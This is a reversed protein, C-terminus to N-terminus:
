CSHSNISCLSCISPRCLETFLYRWLSWCLIVCSSVIEELNLLSWHIKIYYYLFDTFVIESRASCSIMLSHVQSKTTDFFINLNMQFIFNWKSKFIYIAIVCWQLTLNKKKKGLNWSYCCIGVHSQLLLYTLWPNVSVQLFTSSHWEEWLFNKSIRPFYKNKMFCTTQTLM